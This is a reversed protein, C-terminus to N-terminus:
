KNIASVGAQRIRFIVLHLANITQQVIRNTLWVVVEAEGISMFEATEAGEGWVIAVGMEWWIWEVKISRIFMTAQILIICEVEKIDVMTDGVGAVEEGVIGMAGTGM